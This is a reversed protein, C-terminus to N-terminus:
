PFSNVSTNRISKSLLAYIEKKLPDNLLELQRDMVEKDFRAAPGTQAADPEMTKVKAATETILPNLLHFPIGEERMIESALTYMHNTFNSAFVAALHLIRLKKESLEQVNDSIKEAADKLFATTAASSGEIFVPVDRFNMERHKSFTQLPYFVGSEKHPSLVSLPLNGSTHVWVGSTVPMRAIIGPLADDKVSFIYLDAFRCIDELQDTTGTGPRSVPDEGTPDTKRFAATPETESGTLRNEKSRKDGLRLALLKANDLTRNYVQVIENGATNLAVALHTAVNGSGIFVIQMDNTKKILRM